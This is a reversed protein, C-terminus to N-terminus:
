NCEEGGDTQNIKDRIRKLTTLTADRMLPYVKHFTDKRIFDEERNLARNVMRVEDPTLFVGIDDTCVDMGNQEM